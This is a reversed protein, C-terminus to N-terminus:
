PLPCKMISHLSMMKIDDIANAKNTQHTVAQVSGPISCKELCDLIYSKSTAGAGALIFNTHLGFDRRYADLRFIFVKLMEKHSTSCQLYDEFGKVKDLIFHAFPSLTMDVFEKEEKPVPTTTWHLEQQTFWQLMQKCVTSISSDKHWVKRFENMADVADFTGAKIRKMNTESLHEFVSKKKEKQLGPHNRAHIMKSVDQDFALQAAYDAMTKEQNSPEPFLTTYLTYPNFWTHKLMFVCGPYPFSWTNDEINYADCDWQEKCDDLDYAHRHMQGEPYFVNGPNCPNEPHSIGNDPHFVQQDNRFCETLGTYADCCGHAWSEVDEVYRFLEWEKPEPPKKFKSRAADLAIKKNQAIINEIGKGFCITDDLTFIWIRIGKRDTFDKNMVYEMVTIVRPQPEEQGEPVFFINTNKVPKSPRAGEKTEAWADLDRQMIEDTEDCLAINEVCHAFTMLSKLHQNKDLPSQGKKVDQFALPNSIFMEMPFYILIPPRACKISKKFPYEKDTFIYNSM